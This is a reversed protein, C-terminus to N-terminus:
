SDQVLVVAQQPLSGDMTGGNGNGMAITSGGDGDEMTNGERQRQGYADYNGWWGVMWGDRNHQQGVALQAAVM